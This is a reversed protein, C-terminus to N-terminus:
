LDPSNIFRFNESFGVECEMIPQRAYEANEPYNREWRLRSQDQLYRGRPTLSVLNAGHWSLRSVCPAIPVFGNIKLIM